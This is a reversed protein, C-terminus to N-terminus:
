RKLHTTIPSDPTPFVAKTLRKQSPEKSSNRSWVMPTSKLTLVVCSGFPSSTLSCTHRYRFPVPRPLRPQHPCILVCCAIILFAYNLKSIFLLLLLLVTIRSVSRRLCVSSLCVPVVGDAHIEVDLGRLVLHPCTLSCTHRYRFPVPCVLVCVCVCLVCCAIILFAYITQFHVVVVVVICNYLCLSVCVCVSLCVSVCVCARVCARMCVCARVCECVCARVSVCVYVCVSM